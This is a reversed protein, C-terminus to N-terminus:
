QAIWRLWAAEIGSVSAWLILIWYFHGLLFSSWFIGKDRRSLGNFQYANKRLAITIFFADFRLSLLAIQLWIPMKTTVWKFFRIGLSHGEQEQLFKLYELALWDKGSKDYVRIAALDLPISLAIMLIGGWFPGALWIAAGYIPYDFLWSVATYIGAGTLWRFIAVKPRPLEELNEEIAVMNDSNGVTKRFDQM